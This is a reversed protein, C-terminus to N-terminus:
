NVSWAKQATSSISMRQERRALFGTPVRVCVTQDMTLGIDGVAALGSPIQKFGAKQAQATVLDELRRYGFTRLREAAGLRSTYRNRHDGLSDLGTFARVADAAFCLCDATGWVFPRTEYDAIVIQLRRWGEARETDSMM